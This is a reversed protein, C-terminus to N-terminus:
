RLPDLLDLASDFLTTLFLAADEQPYYNHQLAETFEPNAALFSNWFADMSIDVREQEEGEILAKQSWYTGALQQFKDVFNRSSEEPRFSPYGEDLWNTFCPLNLLMTMAANRYCIQTPYKPAEGNRFGVPRISTNLHEGPTSILIAEASLSFEPPDPAQGSMEDPSLSSGNSSSPWGHGSSSRQRQTM